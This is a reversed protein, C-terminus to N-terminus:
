GNYLKNNFSMSTGANNGGQHFPNGGPNREAMGGYNSSSEFPTGYSGGNYQGPDSKINSNFPNSILENYNDVHKDFPTEYGTASGASAGNGSVYAAASGAKYPASGSIYTGSDVNYSGGSYGVAAFNHGGLSSAADVHYSGTDQHQNGAHSAFPSQVQKFPRTDFPGPEDTQKGGSLSGASSHATQARFPKDLLQSDYNTPNYLQSLMQEYRATDFRSSQRDGLGSETNVYVSEHTNDTEFSGGAFGGPGSSDTGVYFTGGALGGPGSDTGMNSAFASGSLGGPGGSTQALSGADMPNGVANNTALSGGMSGFDVGQFKSADFPNKGGLNSNTTKFPSGSSESNAAASFPSAMKGGGNANSFPGAGGGGVTNFPGSGGGNMANNGANSFSGSSGGSSMGGANNGNGNAVSFPGSGGNFASPSSGGNGTATFPGRGNGNGNGSFLGAGGGNNGNGSSFPSSGGGMGGSGGSEKASFPSGGGQIGSNGNSSFPGAGGGSNMSGDGNSNSSFSGGGFGSSGSYGNASFPSGGDKNSSFPGSGGSFNDGTGRGPFGGGGSTMGSGGFGGSGGAFGREGSDLSSGSSFSNGNKQPFGIRAAFDGGENVESGSFQNEIFGNGAGSEDVYQRKNIFKFGSSVNLTMFFLVCLLRVMDTM